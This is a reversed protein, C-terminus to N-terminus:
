EGFSFATAWSGLQQSSTPASKKLTTSTLRLHPIADALFCHEFFYPRTMRNRPIWRIRVRAEPALCADCIGFDASHYVKKIL